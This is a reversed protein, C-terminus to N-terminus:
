SMKKLEKIFDNDDKYKVRIELLKKAYNHSIRKYYYLNFVHAFLNTTWKDGFYKINEPYKYLLPFILNIFFTASVQNKNKM